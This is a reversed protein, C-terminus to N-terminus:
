APQSTRTLAHTLLRIAAEADALEADTPLVAGFSRGGPADLARWHLVPALHSSADALFWALHGHTRAVTLALAALAERLAALREIRPLAEHTGAPGVAGALAAATERALAADTATLQWTGDTLQLEAEDVVRDVAKLMGM